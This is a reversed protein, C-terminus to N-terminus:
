ISGIQLIRSGMLVLAAIFGISLHPGLAVVSHIKGKKTIYLFGMYLVLAMSTFLMAFVTYHLGLYFGIVAAFKIDGVGVQKWLLLPFLFVGIGVVSGWIRYKLPMPSMGALILCLASGIIAILMGNPIKRISIDTVSLIVCASFVYLYELARLTFGFLLASVLWLVGGAASWVAWAAKTGVLPYALITGARRKIVVSAIRHLVWGTYIGILFIAGFKIAM